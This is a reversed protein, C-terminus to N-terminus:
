CRPSRTASRRASSLSRKRGSQQSRGLRRAGRLHSIRGFSRHPRHRTAVTYRPRKIWSKRISRQVRWNDRVYGFVFLWWRLTLLSVAQATEKSSAIALLHAYKSLLGPGAQYVASRPHCKATCLGVLRPTGQPAPLRRGAEDFFQGLRQASLDSGIGSPFFGRRATEIADGDLDTAFIQVNRHIQLDDMCERLVIAISYAEEGTACGPVWIRVTANEPKAELMPLVALKALLEFAWPDRFFSTVGILLEKFLLEAEPANEELFRVYHKPETIQHVNMRREIRRCITSPRTVPSIM